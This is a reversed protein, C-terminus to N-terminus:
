RINWLRKAVCILKGHGDSREARWTISFVIDWLNPLIISAQQSSGTSSPEMDTEIMVVCTNPVVFPLFMDVHRGNLRIVDPSVSSIVLKVFESYEPVDLSEKFSRLGSVSVPPSLVVSATPRLFALNTRLVRRLSEDPEIALIRVSPTRAVLASTVGIGAGIDLFSMGEKLVCHFSFRM